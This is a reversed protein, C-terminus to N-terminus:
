LGHNAMRLGAFGAILAAEEQGAMLKPPDNTDPHFEYVQSTKREPSQTTFAIRDGKPHWAFSAALSTGADHEKFNPVAPANAITGIIEVAPQKAKQHLHGQRGVLSAALWLGFM